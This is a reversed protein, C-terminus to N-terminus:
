CASASSRSRISSTATRRAARMAGGTTACLGCLSVKEELTMKVLVEDARRAAAADDAASVGPIAFALSLVAAMGIKQYKM